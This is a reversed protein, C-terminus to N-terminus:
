LAKLLHYKLVEVVLNDLPQSLLFSCQILWLEGSFCVWYSIHPAKNHPIPEHASPLWSTGCDARQLSSVLPTIWDWVSPRLVLPALPTFELGLAPSSSILRGLELSAPFFFTRIRREEAKQEAWAKLVNSATQECQPPCGVKHLGSTWVSMKDLFVKVPM